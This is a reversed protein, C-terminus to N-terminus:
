RCVIGGLAYARRMIEDANAQYEEATGKRGTYVPTYPRGIIIHVRHFLRKKTDIFMPVMDVGSRIAMMAAGGKVEAQGPNRVRTGEPVILLNWGQKVSQNATKVAQIYSNRRDVAFAGM